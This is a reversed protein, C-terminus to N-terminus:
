DEEFYLDLIDSFRFGMEAIGLKEPIENDVYDVGEEDLFMEFDGRDQYLYDNGDINVLYMPGWYNLWMRITSPAIGDDFEMPVDHSSTIQKIRGAFDIGNNKLFRKTRENSELLPAVPFSYCPFTSTEGNPFISESGFYCTVKENEVPFFMSHIFGIEDKFSKQQNYPIKDYGNFKIKYLLVPTNNKKWGSNQFTTSVDVDIGGCWDYESGRKNLLTKIKGGLLESRKFQDETLTRFQSETIIIKM